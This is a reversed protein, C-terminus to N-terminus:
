LEQEDEQTNGKKYQERDQDEKKHKKFHEKWQRITTDTCRAGVQKVVESALSNGYEFVDDTFAKNIGKNNDLYNKYLIATMSLFADGAGSPDIEEEPKTITYREAIIKESNKYYIVAGRKGRTLTIMDINCEEMLESIDNIELKEKLKELVVESIQIINVRKM